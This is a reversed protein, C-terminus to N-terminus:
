VPSQATPTSTSRSSSLLPPHWLLIQNERSASETYAFGVPSFSNSCIASVGLPSGHSLSLVGLWRIDLCSSTLLLWVVPLGWVVRIPFSSCIRCNTQVTRCPPGIRLTAARSATSHPARSVGVRSSRSEALGTHLNHVIDTVPFLAETHPQISVSSVQRLATHPLVERVTRPPLPHFSPYPLSLHPVRLPFPSSVPRDQRLRPAM